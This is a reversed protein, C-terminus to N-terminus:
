RWVVRNKAKRRRFNQPLGSKIEKGLISILKNKLNNRHTIISVERTPIPDKLFKIKKSDEAGLGFQALEPLLTVGGYVDVLRKIAELSGSEYSFSLDTDASNEIECISVVQDRFCHGENLIWIKDNKLQQIDLREREMLVSKESVYALFQEYFLPIENINKDHLPTVLIGVDLLEKKLKAIVQDTILEQVHVHVDPYKETFSAIFRPLLYPAITPIIGIRLEGRVEGLEESVIDNIRYSEHLVKRAQQLIREGAATPVVPQKSRDFISIGLQDELKQIQM